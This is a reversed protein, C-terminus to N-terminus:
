RSKAVGGLGCLAARAHEGLPRQARQVGRVECEAGGMVAIAGIWPMERGIMELAGELGGHAGIAGDPDVVVLAVQENCEGMGALRAHAAELIDRAIARGAGQEHSGGGLLRPVNDLSCVAIWLRGDGTEAAMDPRGGYGAPAEPVAEVKGAGSLASHVRMRALAGAYDGCALADKWAEPCGGLGIGRVADEAERLPSTPRKGAAGQGEDMGHGAQARRSGGGELGRLSKLREKADRLRQEAHPDIFRNGFAAHTSERLRGLEAEIDEMEPRTMHTIEHTPDGPIAKELKAMILGIEKIDSPLCSLLVKKADLVQLLTLLKNPRLHAAYDGRLDWYKKQNPTFGPEFPMDLGAGALEKTINAAELIVYRMNYTEKTSLLIEEMTSNDGCLRELYRGYLLCLCLYSVLMAHQKDASSTNLTIDIANYKIEMAKLNEPDAHPLDLKVLDRDWPNIGSYKHRITRYAADQFMLVKKAHRVISALGVRDVEEKVKKLPWDIHAGFTNRLLKISKKMEDRLEIIKYIAEPNKVDLRKVIMRHATKEWNKDFDHLELLLYGVAMALRLWGLEPRYFVSEKPKDLLHPDNYVGHERYIEDLWYRIRMNSEAAVNYITEYDQHMIHDTAIHLLFKSIRAKAKRLRANSSISRLQAYRGLVDHIGTGDPIDYMNSVLRWLLAMEALGARGSCATARADETMLESLVKLRSDRAIGALADYCSGLVDKVSDGLEDAKVYACLLSARVAELTVHTRRDGDLGNCIEGFLAWLSGCNGPTVYVRGISEALAVACADYDLDNLLASLMRAAMKPALGDGPAPGVAGALVGALERSAEDRERGPRASKLRSVAQEWGGIEAAGEGGVYTKV